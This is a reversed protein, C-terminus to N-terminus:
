FYLLHCSSQFNSLISIHADELDVLLPTPTPPDRTQALEEEGCERCKSAHPLTRTPSSVAELQIVSCSIEATM